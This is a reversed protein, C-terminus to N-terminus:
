RHALRAVGPREGRHRPLRAWPWPHVARFGCPYCASGQPRARSASALLSMPSCTAARAPLPSPSVCSPSGQRTQIPRPSGADTGTWKMRCSMDRRVPKWSSPLKVTRSLIEAKRVAQSTPSRCQFESRVMEFNVESASQGSSVQQPESRPVQLVKKQWKAAENFDGVEAYAAALSEFYRRDSWSTIECARMASEVAKRGDRYKAEPCTALIWALRDYAGANNPNHLIAANFDALAEGYQKKQWWVRGRTVFALAYAPDLRIAENLDLLAKDPQRKMLWIDARNNLATTDKPNLKIATDFDALANSIKGKVMWVGGRNTYSNADGPDLRVAENLDALAKDYENRALWLTSRNIRFSSDMPDLRIAQDFDALAAKYERKHLWIIARHDYALAYGPDLRIAEGLDAFAKDFDGKELWFSGRFAFAVADKPDLRIAENVDNIARGYDQQDHWALSRGIFAWTDNSDRRIRETFYPLAQAVLVLDSKKVWGNRGRWRIRVYEGGIADVRITTETITSILKTGDEKEFLGVARKTTIAEEDVWSKGASSQEQGLLPVTWCALVLCGIVNCYCRNM